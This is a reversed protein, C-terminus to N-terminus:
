PCEARRSTDDQTGAAFASRWPWSSAPGKCARATATTTKLTISPCPRHAGGNLRLRLYAHHLRRVQLRDGLDLPGRVFERPAETDEAVAQEGAIVADHELDVARHGPVADHRDRRGLRVHQVDAHVRARLAAAVATPQQVRQEVLRPFCADVLDEELHPRGILVRDREIARDAE